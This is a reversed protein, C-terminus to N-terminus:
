GERRGWADPDADISDLRGDGGGVIHINQDTIVGHALEDHCEPCSLAVACRCTECRWPEIADGCHRCNIPPPKAM